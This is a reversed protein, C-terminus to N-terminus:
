EVTEARSYKWVFLAKGQNKEGRGEQEMVHTGFVSGKTRLLEETMFKLACLEAKVLPENGM